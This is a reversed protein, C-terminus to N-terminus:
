SFAFNTLKRHAHLPCLDPVKKVIEVDGGLGLERLKDRLM